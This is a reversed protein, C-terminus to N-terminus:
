TDEKGKRYEITRPLNKLPLQPLEETVLRSIERAHRELTHDPASATAVALRRIQRRRTAVLREMAARQAPDPRWSAVTHRVMDRVIEALGTRESAVIKKLANYDDIAIRVNLQATEGSTRPRGRPM